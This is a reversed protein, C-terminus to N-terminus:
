AHGDRQSRGPALTPVGIRPFWRAASEAFRQISVWDMCDIDRDIPLGLQRAMRVALSRRIPGLGALRLVGPVFEVVDPRWPTCALFTTYYEQTRALGRADRLAASMSIMMLASPRQSLAVGHASAFRVLRPQMRGGHISGAVVVADSEDLATTAAATGVDDLSVVHGLERLAAALHDVVARTHGESSAYAIAFRAM